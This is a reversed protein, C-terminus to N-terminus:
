PTLGIPCGGKGVLADLFLEFAHPWPDPLDAWPAEGDAGEVHNSKYFLQNNCVYAHGETGSVIVNVPHAVDVWGAALTAVVGDRFELLAKVMSMVIAM